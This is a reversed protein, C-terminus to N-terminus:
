KQINFARCRELYILAGFWITNPARIHVKSKPNSNARVNVCLSYNPPKLKDCPQEPFRPPKKPCKQQFEKGQSPEFSATPATSKSTFVSPTKHLPKIGSSDCEELLQTHKGRLQPCKEQNDWVMPTIM